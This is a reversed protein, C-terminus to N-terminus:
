GCLYSPLLIHRQTKHFRVSTDDPALLGMRDQYNMLWLLEIIAMSGINSM